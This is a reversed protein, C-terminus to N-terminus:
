TTCSFGLHKLHQPGLNPGHSSLGDSDLGHDHNHAARHDFGHWLYGHTTPTDLWYKKLPDVLVTQDDYGNIQHPKTFFSLEPFVRQLDYCLM